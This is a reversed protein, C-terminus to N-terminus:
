RTYRYMKYHSPPRTGRSFPYFFLFGSLMDVVVTEVMMEARMNGLMDVVTEVVTEAM